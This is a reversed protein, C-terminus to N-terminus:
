KLKFNVRSVRGQDAQADAATANIKAKTIFMRADDVGADKLANKVRQARAMALAQLQEDGIATNALLLKEMEEVPLSKNFGLANKPKPFKEKKYVQTLLAPKEAESIRVESESNVSEAKEGLEEAKLQQMKNQLAQVRLGEADVDVGAWGTIELQLDPRDNLAQALNAIAQKAEDDLRTQGSAFQVYSLSPGDGFASALADFPATVIKELVNGIVQWIIGGVSFQPDDLSGQIPLNLKIQGKRDTLLSLAFKVPLKTATPSEVADGLTLQDLFLKNSAKLQKNEILYAVDMSMKGKEIGYGAYKIAYASANTLEYGKVGGKIDIFFDKALPNLSGKIEVPAIKDVSGRLDLTARTDNQSSIGGIVGGMETLNASFNPKIFLDSYQIQGNQLTIKNVKIPVEVGRSDALTKSAEAPASAKDSAARETTVSVQEGDKVMVDQLNLRGDSSLILRSYFDSLAVEGIELQLPVFQANVGRVDLNKWKLFDNGTSKDLAYLDTSRLNGKYTGSFSPQTAISLQGQAHLFGSALTINVFRSFYPQGFAADVNRIDLNFVGSFPQPLWTGAVNVKAGRGGLAQFKLEAKTKGRSDVNKVFLGINKWQLPKANEVRQDHLDARWDQLAGDVLFVSWPQQASPARKEEARPLSSVFAQALNISGDKLLTLDLAGQETNLKAIQIQQTTSDLAVDALAFRPITLAPKKEKPLRLSLDSIELQGKKLGYKLDQSTFDIEANLNIKANLAGAFFAQSYAAFDAAQIGSASVTGTVRFPRPVLHLEAALRASQDTSANLQLPFGSQSQNSINKLNLSIAQLVTRHAPSVGEDLWRLQSNSVKLETAALLLSDPAATAVTPKAVDSAVVASAAASKSASHNFLKQWNLQQAKDRAVIVELGDLEIKGFRFQQLLPQMNKLEVDLTKFAALPQSQQLTAVDAFRLRGNLILDARNKQQRFTLDLQSSLKASAVQLDAPLPVYALLPMLDQQEISLKLTTDLSDKFPKSEGQLAFPRGNWRGSFHPQIYEDIRNPLTSLFPLAFNLQDLQQRQGVFRDDLQVSGNVLQINNFSFRPLESSESSSQQNSNLLDSFNYQHASLRVINLKAQELTIARLVPALRVISSLEADLLLSKFSLFRGYQDDITVDRLTLQFLYPNIDVAGIQVPRKLAISAKEALWPRLIAPLAWAGVAGFLLAAALSYVVIRTWRPYLKKFITM